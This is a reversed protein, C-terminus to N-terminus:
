IDLTVMGLFWFTTSGGAKSQIYLGHWGIIAWDLFLLSELWQLACQYLLQCDTEIPSSSFCISRNFLFQNANPGGSNRWSRSIKFNLRSCQIDAPRRALMLTSTHVISAKFSTLTHFSQMFSPLTLCSNFTILQLGGGSLIIPSAVM